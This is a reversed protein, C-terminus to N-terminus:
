ERYSEGWAEKDNTNTKLLIPLHTLGNWSLSQFLEGPVFVGGREKM